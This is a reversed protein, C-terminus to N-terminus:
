PEDAEASLPSAVNNGNVSYLRYFHNGTGPQDTCTTATGVCQPLDTGDRQVHYTLPGPVQPGTVATWMITVTPKQCTATFDNVNDRCFTRIGGPIHTSLILPALPQQSFDFDNMINGVPATTGDMYTVQTVADRVSPRSDPNGLAVPDLRAGNMFLDEIFTNFNAFSLFQHDIQGSKVWPSILLGPVRLGFGEVFSMDPRQNVMPDAM